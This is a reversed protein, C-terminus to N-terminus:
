FCLTQLMRFLLMPTLKRGPKPFANKGSVCRFARPQCSYDRKIDGPMRGPVALAAAQPGHKHRQSGMEEALLEPPNSRPWSQTDLHSDLFVALYGGSSQARHKGREGSVM